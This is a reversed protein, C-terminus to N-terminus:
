RHHVDMCARTSAHKCARTHMSALWRRRGVGFEVYYKSREGICAFIAELIGDEGVQSFSRTRTHRARARIRTQMCAHM